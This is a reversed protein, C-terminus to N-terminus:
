LMYSFRETYFSDMKICHFVTAKSFVHLQTKELQNSESNRERECM